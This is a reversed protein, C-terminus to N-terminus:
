SGHVGRRKSARTATGASLGAVIACDRVKRTAGCKARLSSLESKLEQLERIRMDVHAMHEDILANVEACSAQPTDKLRLLARVEELTMDLARCQRIFMLRERHAETYVRFNGATRRAVPLLGDREYYRITEVPVAAARALDGIRYTKDM